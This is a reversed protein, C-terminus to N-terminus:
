LDADFVSTGPPLTTVYNATDRAPLLEGREANAYVARTEYEDGHRAELLIAPCPSTILAGDDDGYVNVWGPPLVTVAITHWTPSQPTTPM